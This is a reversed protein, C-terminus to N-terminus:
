PSISALAPISGADVPKASRHMVGKSDRRERFSFPPPARLAGGRQNQERFSGVDKARHPRESNALRLSACFTIRETRKATGLTYSLGSAACPIHPGSQQRRRLAGRTNEM